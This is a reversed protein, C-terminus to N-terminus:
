GRENAGSERERRQLLRAASGFIGDTKGTRQMDKLWSTSHYDIAQEDAPLRDKAMLDEQKITGDYCRKM